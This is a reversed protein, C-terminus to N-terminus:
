DIAFTATVSASIKHKGVNIEPASELKADMAMARQGMLMPPQQWNTNIQLNIVEGLQEDLAMVSAQARARAKETAKAIAQLELSERQSFKYRTQDLNNAGSDPLGSYLEGLRDMDRLTVTFPASAQYGTIERPKNRPYHWTPHVRVSAANLDDNAVDLSRVFQIVRELQKQAQRTAEKATKAEVSVRGSVVAIDPVAMVEGNASSTVQREDAHVHTVVFLSVVVCLLYKM